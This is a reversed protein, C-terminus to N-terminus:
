KQYKFDSKHHSREEIAVYPSEAIFKHTAMKAASPAVLTLAASYYEYLILKWFILLLCLLMGLNKNAFTSNDYKREGLQPFKEGMGPGFSSWFLVHVRSSYHVVENLLTEIRMWYPPVINHVSSKDAQSADPSPRPRRECAGSSWGCIVSWVESSFLTLNGYCIRRSPPAPSLPSWLRGSHQQFIGILWVYIATM